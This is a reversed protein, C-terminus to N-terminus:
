KKAKRDYGDVVIYYTGNANRITLDEDSINNRISRGVCRASALDCGEFVFVDLDATHDELYIRMNSNVVDIKYVVDNGTYPDDYQNLDATCNGYSAHILSNGSSFNDGFIKTGCTVPKAKACFNQAKSLPLGSLLLWLFLIIRFM